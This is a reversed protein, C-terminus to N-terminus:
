DDTKADPRGTNIVQLGNDRAFSGLFNYAM